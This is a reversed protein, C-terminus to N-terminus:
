FNIIKQISASKFCSKLINPVICFILLGHAISVFYQDVKISGFIFDMIQHSREKLCKLRFLLTSFKRVQISAENFGQGGLTNEVKRRLAKYPLWTM